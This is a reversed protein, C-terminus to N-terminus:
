PRVGFKHQKAKDLEEEFVIKETGRARWVANCGIMMEEFADPELSSAHDPGDAMVDLTIHKEIIRAGIAVAGIATYITPTHCSLGYVSDATFKLYPLMGLNVREYPTPYISTCQLFAHDHSMVLGRTRAVDMWSGMGTSILLPKGYCLVRDILELNTLEGSPIKHAPVKLENVIDFGGADFASCLWDIGLHWCYMCIDAHENPTLRDPQLRMQFKVASAGAGKAALCLMKARDIDGNFNNCAEAIIYPPHEAGILTNGISFTM